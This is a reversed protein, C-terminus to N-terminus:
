PTGGKDFPIEDDPIDQVPPKKPAPKPAAPPADGRPASPTGPAAMDSRDKVELASTYFVPKIVQLIEWRTGNSMSTPYTIFTIFGEAGNGVTGKGYDWSTTDANVIVAPGGYQAYKHFHARKFKFRWREQEDYEKKAREIKGSTESRRLIDANEDDMLLECTYMGDINPASWDAGKPGVMDRDQPRSKCWRIEGYVEFTGTM